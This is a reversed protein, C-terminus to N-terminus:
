HAPHRAALAAGAAAGVAFWLANRKLRQWFGGGKAAKIAADRERALAQARDQEDKVDARAAALQAQCARCDQVFDFLPKLDAAPIQAAPASRGPEGQRPGPLGEKGPANPLESPIPARGAPASTPNAGSRGPEGQRRGPLGESRGLEGSQDGSSAKGAVRPGREPSPLGESRGLEGQRPSPLGEKEPPAPAIPQPLPLYKPLDRLIQAPTQTARKLDEIQALSQKLEAARDRERAQAADLLQKQAGLTAQLRLQDDHAALWAHFAMAALLLAVSFLAVEITRRM